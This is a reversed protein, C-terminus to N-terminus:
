SKFKKILRKYDELTDLDCTEEDKVDFLKLKKSYFTKEKIFKNAQAWYFTGNSVRVVPFKQSKINEFKKFLSKAYGKKNVNIAKVPHFNYKSVGMLVNTSKDNYFKKYSKQLTSFKILAATAYICCFLHTPNDLLVDLCTEVVTAHDTSLYKPRIHIKAGEYKALSSIEQDETSVIIEDFLGSKKVMRIVRSLLPVGNLPLINKRPLRKSGGRAPIIALKKIKKM